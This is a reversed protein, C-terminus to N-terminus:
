RNVNLLYLELLTGTPRHVQRFVEFDSGRVTFGPADAPVRLSRYPSGPRDLLFDSAFVHGVTLAFMEEEVGRGARLFRPALMREFKQTVVRHDNALLDVAYGRHLGGVHHLETARCDGYRRFGYCYWRRGVQGLVEVRTDGCAHCAHDGRNRRRTRERTAFYAINDM